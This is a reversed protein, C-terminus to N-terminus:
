LYQNMNLCQKFLQISLNIFLKKVINSEKYIFILNNLNFHLNKKASYIFISSLILQFLEPFNQDRFINLGKKFSFKKLFTSMLKSSMSFSTMVYIIFYEFSKNLISKVLTLKFLIFTNSCLFFKKKIISNIRDSNSYFFVM